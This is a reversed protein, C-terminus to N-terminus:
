ANLPKRRRAAIAEASRDMSAHIQAMRQGHRAETDDLAAQMATRMIEDVDRGLAETLWNSMGQRVGETVAAMMDLRDLKITM